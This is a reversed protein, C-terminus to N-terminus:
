ALTWEMASPLAGHLITRLDSEARLLAIPDETRGGCCSELPRVVLRPCRPRDPHGVGALGATVAMPMKDLEFPCESERGADWSVIPDNFPSRHIFQVTREDSRERGVPVLDCARSAARHLLDIDEACATDMGDVGSLANMAMLGTRAMFAIETEATQDDIDPHLHASLPPRTSLIIEGRPSSAVLTRELRRTGFEGGIQWHVIRIDGIRHTSVDHAHVDQLREGEGRRLATAADDLERWMALWTAVEPRPRRLEAISPAGAHSGEVIILRDHM